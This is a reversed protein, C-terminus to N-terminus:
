AVSLFRVGRMVRRGAGKSGIVVITDATPRVGNNHRATLTVVPLRQATADV